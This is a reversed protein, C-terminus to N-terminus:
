SVIFVVYIGLCPPQISIDSWEKEELQFQMTSESLHEFMQISCTDHWAPLQM